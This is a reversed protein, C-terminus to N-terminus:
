RSSASPSASPRSSPLPLPHSPDARENYVREFGEMLSLVNFNFLFGLPLNSIRLYSLLQARHIAAAREVAKLEVVISDEVILDFVQDRLKHGKYLVPTTAQRRVSLGATCLEYVMADEYIGELLGPGLVRHVEIACGIITHGLAEIADPLPSKEVLRTSM